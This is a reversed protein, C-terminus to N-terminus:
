DYWPLADEREVDCDFLIYECGAHRAMSIAAGLDDAFEETENPTRGAWVLWGYESSLSPGRGLITLAGASDLAERTAETLHGTSLELVKIVSM